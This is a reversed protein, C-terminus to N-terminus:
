WGERTRAWALLSARRGASLAAGTPSQHAPTVLVAAPFVAGAGGGASRARGPAAAAAHRRRRRPDRPAAAAGSGGRRGGPRERAGGGAADAGAGGGLVRARHGRRRRGRARPAPARGTGAAAGARRASRSVRVRQRSGPAPGRSPGTAVRAASLRRSRPQRPLLRLAAGAPAVFRAGGRLQPGRRGRVDGSGGARDPLGRGAAPCLLGGGTTALGGPRCGALTLAATALEAALRGDRIAGRLEEELQARLGRPAARDLRLLLDGGSNTGMM